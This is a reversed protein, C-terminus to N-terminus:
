FACFHGVSANSVELLHALELAVRNFAIVEELVGKVLPVIEQLCGRVQDFLEM